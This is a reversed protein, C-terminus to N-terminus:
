EGDSGKMPSSPVYMTRHNIATVKPKEEGGCLTTINNWQRNSLREALYGYEGIITGVVDRSFQGQEVRFGTTYM